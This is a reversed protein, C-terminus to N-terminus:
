SVSSRIGSRCSAFSSQSVQILISILTQRCGSETSPIVLGHHPLTSQPASSSILLPSRAITCILSGAPFSHPTNYSSSFTTHRTFTLALIHKRTITVCGHLDLILQLSSSLLCSHNRVSREAKKGKIHPGRSPASAAQYLVEFFPLFCCRPKSPYTGQGSDM